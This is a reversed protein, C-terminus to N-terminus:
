PPTGLQAPDTLVKGRHFYVVNFQPALEKRLQSWLLVGEVEFVALEEAPPKQSALPDDFNLWSDYLAAWAELRGITESRIPLASPDVNGVSDHWWLPWCGYDAMLKITNPM